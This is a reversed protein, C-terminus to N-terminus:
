SPEVGEEGVVYSRYKSRVVTIILIITLAGLLNLFLDNATDPGDGLRHSGTFFDEFYEELEYLAGFFSAAFLAFIGRGIYGLKIKGCRNFNNIIVLLLGGAAAGGLFHASQDYWGFRGYFRLIDGLADQYVAAAAILMAWGALPYGCSKRLFYSITEVILWAIVSTIVLGFWTFDLTFHLVGAQNLLEFIILAFFLFRSFQRLFNTMESKIRVNYTRIQDFLHM